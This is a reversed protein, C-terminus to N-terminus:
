GPLFSPGLPFVRWRGDGGEINLASQLGSISRQRAAAVAHAMASQRDPFHLSASQNVLLVYVGEEVPDLPLDFIMMM